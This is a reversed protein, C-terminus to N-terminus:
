ALAVWLDLLGGLLLSAYTLSMGVVRFRFNEQPRSIGVAHVLRGALLALGLVHVAWAPGGGYEALAMVVLAMPVYEACNGHARMARRLPEDGGDGLAVRAKRRAKVVRISLVVFLLALPAAYLATVPM